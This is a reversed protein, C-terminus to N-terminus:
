TSCCTATTPCCNGHCRARAADGGAEDGAGRVDAGGPDAHVHARECAARQRAGADRDGDGATAGTGGPRGGAGRQGGALHGDRGGARAGLPGDARNAAPRLLADLLAVHRAPPRVRRPRASGCHDGPQGAGGPGARAPPGDVPLAAARAGSDAATGGGRRTRGLEERSRPRLKQDADRRGHRVLRPPVGHLRDAAGRVHLAGDGWPVRGAPPKLDRPGPARPTKGRRVAAERPRRAHLGPAWPRRPSRARASSGRIAGREGCASPEPQVREPSATSRGLLAHGEGRAGRRTPPKRDKGGPPDDALEFGSGGRFTRQYM